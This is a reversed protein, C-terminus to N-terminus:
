FQPITSLAKALVQRRALKEQLSFIPVSQDQGQGVVPQSQYLKDLRNFLIRIDRLCEGRIVSFQGPLDITGLRNLFGGAIQWIPLNGLQNVDKVLGKKWIPLWDSFRIEGEFRNIQGNFSLKRWDFHSGLNMALNPTDREGLYMILAGKLSELKALPNQSFLPLFYSDNQLSKTLKPDQPMLGWLIKTVWEPLTLGAPGVEYIGQSRLFYYWDTLDLSQKTIVEADISGTQAVATVGGMRDTNTFNHQPSYVIENEETFAGIRYDQGDWCLTTPSWKIRIPQYGDINLGLSKRTIESLQEEPIQRGVISEKTFSWNEFSKGNNNLFVLRSREESKGSKSIRNEFINFALPLEQPLQFCTRDFAKIISGINNALDQDRTEGVTNINELQISTLASIPNSAPFLPIPESVSNKNILKERESALLLTVLVQTAAEQDHLPLNSFQEPDTIGLENSFSLKELFARSGPPLLDQPNKSKNTIQYFKMERSYLYPKEDLFPDLRRSLRQIVRQNAVDIWARFSDTDSYAIRDIPLYLDGASSIMFHAFGFSNPIQVHLVGKDNLDLSCILKGSPPKVSNEPWNYPPETPMIMSPLTSQFRGPLEKLLNLIYEKSQLDLLNFIIQQKNYALFSPPRVELFNEAEVSCGSELLTMGAMAFGLIGAIKLFNGRSIEKSM